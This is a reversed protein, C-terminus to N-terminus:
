GRPQTQYDWASVPLQTTITDHNWMGGISRDVPDDLLDFAHHGVVKRAPLEARDDARDSFLRNEILIM